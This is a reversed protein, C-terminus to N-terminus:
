EPTHNNQDMASLYLYFWIMIIPVLADYLNLVLSTIYRVEHPNKSRPFQKEKKQLNFSM